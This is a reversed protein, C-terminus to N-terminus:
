NANCSRRENLLVQYHTHDKAMERAVAEAVQRALAADRAEREHSLDCAAYHADRATSSEAGAGETTGSDSDKNPNGM